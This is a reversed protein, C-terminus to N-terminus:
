TYSSNRNFLYKKKWDNNAYIVYSLISKSCFYYNIYFNFCFISDLAYFWLFYLCVFPNNIMRKSCSGEFVIKLVWDFNISIYYFNVKKETYKKINCHFEYTYFFDHWISIIHKREVMKRMYLTSYVVKFLLILVYIVVFFLSWFLLFSFRKRVM